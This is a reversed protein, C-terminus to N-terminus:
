GASLERRRLVIPAVSLPAALGLAVFGWPIAGQGGRDLGTALLAIAVSGGLQRLLYFLSAATPTDREPMHAFAFGQMGVYCLGTGLGRLAQPLVAEGQGRWSVRALLLMATFFCAAGVACLRAGSFRRLLPQSSLVAAGSTLGGVAVIAGAHGAAFGLQVELLQPLLFVSSYLGAGYLPAALLTRALTGHRLVGLDVAPAATRREHRVFLWAFLAAFPFLWPHHACGAQLASVALALLAAGALDPRAERAERHPEGAAGLHLHRLVLALSILGLPLNIWFISRWGFADTLVGGIPPGSLPGLVGAMGALAVAVGRQEGVYLTMFIGQSIPWLGGSALGQLVRFAILMPLGTSLACACSALVFLALSTAFYRRLGFRAVLAPALPMVVLSALAYGTVVWGAHSLSGGVSAVLQPLAVNVISGDITQLVAALLVGAVALPQARLRV